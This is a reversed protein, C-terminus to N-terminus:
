YKDEGWIAMEEILYDETRFNCDKCLSLKDRQRHKLIKRIQNFKKSRWINLLSDKKCNGIPYKGYYDNCCLLIDGKYNIALKEFPLPCSEVYPRKIRLEKILGARNGEFTKPVRVLINRRYWRKEKNIWDLVLRVNRNIRGDYQTIFILDTGAKILNIFIKKTLYDGNSFVQIFSNPCKKRTYKIFKNLRSDLLPEGYLHPSIRGCYNIKSLENIIKYFLDETMLKKERNNFKNPCFKCKRNCTSTTEIDVGTFMVWSDYRLFNKLRLYNHVLFRRVYLQKSIKNM